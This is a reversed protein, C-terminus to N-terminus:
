ATTQESQKKEKSAVFVLGPFAANVLAATIGKYPIKKDKVSCMLAADNKDLGEIFQIFMTERKIQHLDHGGEQKIFYQLKRIDQFLRAEQDLYDCPKYPPVGKPLLWEIRPDLAYQLIVRLALTDNQQLYEVKDKTTGLKSCRSLIESISLKM